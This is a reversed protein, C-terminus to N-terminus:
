VMLSECLIVEEKTSVGDDDDDTDLLDITGDDDTDLLVYLSEQAVYRDFYDYLIGTFSTVLVDSVSYGSSDAFMLGTYYVRYDIQDLDGTLGLTKKMVDEYLFVETGSQTTRYWSEDYDWVQDGDSDSDEADPIGDDDTDKKFEFIWLRNVEYCTFLVDGDSDKRDGIVACDTSM